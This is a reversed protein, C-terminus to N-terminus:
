KYPNQVLTPDADLEAQPLPIYKKDKTWHGTRGRDSAKTGDCECEVLANLANVSSAPVDVLRVLDFYRKGEGVFELRREQIINDLTASVHAVGARDRVRDLYGQADGSGYGRVILEAANLLAEAYRYVRVNNNYSINKSTPTDANNVDRPCFKGLWLHTDQYRNKYEYSRVDWVTADRRVDGDEFMDYTSTRVPLFGWGDGGSWGDGGPWGEPAILTPLITGGAFMANPDGWDRQANDDNYNIEWISEMCWEGGDTWINAYDPNLDYEGTDGIITKMYELAKPLRAEDNQYMTLEAYLMYVMAQSIRGSNVNDWRMPLANKKIVYELEVILQEYIDDAKAQAAVYPYSLNELYFPINGYFKWMFTYYYVRLTRAQMEIKNLTDDNLKGRNWEVYKIADNCRKVGKYYNRWFTSLTYNGTAEFNSLMHWHQNDTDNSGGVWFDDGMIETCVTIADYGINDWDTYRLPAYASVLAEQLTEVTTYYEELPEGDPKQVDLWDESCSSLMGAAAFVLALIKFKKM